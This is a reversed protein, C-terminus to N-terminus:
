NIEGENRNYQNAVSYLYHLLKIYNIGCQLIKEQSKYHTDGGMYDNYIALIIVINTMGYIVFQIQMIKANHM